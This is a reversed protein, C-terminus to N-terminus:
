VNRVIAFLVATALLLVWASEPLKPWNVRNKTIASWYAAAAVATLLPMLAIVLFNYRIARVVRGHLLASVARTAGCGPCYIHAYRYFPCTPYFGYKEPPFKYLVVGIVIGALVSLNAIRRASNM